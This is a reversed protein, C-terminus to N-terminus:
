VKLIDGVLFQITVEYTKSYLASLPATVVRQRASSDTSTRGVIERIEVKLISGKTVNNDNQYITSSTDNAVSTTGAGWKIYVNSQSNFLTYLNSIRTEATTTGDDRIFGDVTIVVKNMGLDVIKTSVEDELFFPLELDKFKPKDWNHVIRPTVIINVSTNGSYFTVEAEQDIDAVM